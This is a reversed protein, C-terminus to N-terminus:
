GAVFYYEKRNFYKESFEEAKLPEGGRLFNKLTNLKLGCENVLLDYVMDPTTKYYDSAGLGHEFVIVPKSSRITNVAGRLVQLEAGEVDIKILDVKRSGHIIHDLLETRVRIEETEMKKNDYDRKRFGSYAPNSKVFTFVTEGAQDSLAINYLEIHESTYKEKLKEFFSPLPEFGYFHGRPAYKMMIDLMEGKHCGIDIAVSGPKLVKQFIKETLRDYELNKTLDLHLFVFIKRLLNKSIRLLKM